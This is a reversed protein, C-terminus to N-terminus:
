LLVSPPHFISGPIEESDKLLYLFSSAATDNTQTKLILKRHQVFPSIEVQEKIPNKSPENRKDDEKLLKNLHCKGHCKMEPKTKNECYKATITEQNVAFDVYLAVKFGTQLVLAFFLTIAILRSVIHKESSLILDDFALRM